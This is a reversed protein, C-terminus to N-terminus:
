VRVLIVKKSIDGIVKDTEWQGFYKGGDWGKLEANNKNVDYEGM